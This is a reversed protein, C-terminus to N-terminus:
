AGCRGAGPLRPPAQAESGPFGARRGPVRPTQSACALQPRAQLTRDKRLRRSSPSYPALCGPPGVPHGARETPLRFKPHGASLAPCVQASGSPRVGECTKQAPKGKAELRLELFPPPTTSPRGRRRANGQGRGRKESRRGESREKGECRQSFKGRVADGPSRVPDGALQFRARRPSFSSGPSACDRVAKSRVLAQVM